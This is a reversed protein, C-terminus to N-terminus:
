NGGKFKYLYLMFINKGLLTPEKELNSNTGEENNSFIPILKSPSLFPLFASKPEPVCRNVSESFSLIKLVILLSYWLNLSFTIFPLFVRDSISAKSLIARPFIHDPLSAKSIPNISPIPPIWSAISIAFDFAPIIAAASTFISSNGLTFGKEKKSINLLLLTM